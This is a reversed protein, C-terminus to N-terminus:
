SGADSLEALQRQAHPPLLTRFDVLTEEPQYQVLKHRYVGLTNHRFTGGYSTVSSLQGYLHHIIKDGPLLVAVHNGVTSGIAMLIVDGPRWFRPHEHVISFGEDSAHEAFLNLGGAWWDTPCAVDTLEVDFNDAYFRRVLQFCNHHDQDFPIGILHEYKM